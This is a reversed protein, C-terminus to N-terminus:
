RDLRQVLIGKAREIVIRDNLRQQLQEVQMRLNLQRRRDALASLVAYGLCEPSPQMPVWSVPFQEALARYSELRPGSVAVVVGGGNGLWTELWPGAPILTDDFLLIDQRHSGFQGAAFALPCCVEVVWQSYEPQVVWERLSGSLGGPDEGQKGLLLGVRMATGRKDSCAQPERIIPGRNTTDSRSSNAVGPSANELLGGKDLTAAFRQHCGNPNMKVLGLATDMFNDRLRGIGGTTKPM